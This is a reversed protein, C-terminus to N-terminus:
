RAIGTLANWLGGSAALDRGLAVSWETEDGFEDRWSWLRRTLLQLSYEETFGIAGHIQHAAKAIAGAAEGTRIKAVAIARWDMGAAVSSAAMDSAARAAAAQTAISALLQQIAQFAGLQRGFQSRERAYTITLDVAAEAAGAIQAARLAAGLLRPTDRRFGKPLAAVASEAAFANISLRDRPEGALNSDTVAEFAAQPIITLVPRGDLEGTCVLACAGGWAVSELEASIRVGNDSRIFQAPEPAFLTPDKAPPLGAQSLLWDAGMAEALPLALGAAGSLRVINLAQDVGVGGGDESRMAQLFGADALMTWGPKFWRAASAAKRAASSEITGADAFINEATAAILAGIDNEDREAVLTGADSM